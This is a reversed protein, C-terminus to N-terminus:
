KDYRISWGFVKRKLLKIIQRGRLECVKKWEIKGYSLQNFLRNQYYRRLRSRLKSKDFYGVIENVNELEQCIRKVEKPDNICMLDSFEKVNDDTTGPFITKIYKLQVVNVVSWDKNVSTVQSSHTRYLYLVEQMNILTLGCALARTWLDYDEAPVMEQRYFLGNKLFQKKRWMSSAHLVPSYSLANFKVDEIDSSRIMVEQSAGFRKMGASVLDVTPHNDLYAVQKEMRQPLSIDDSDMRAIYEGRAMEIGINLVNALGVNQQGRYRVIREDSYTDLIEESNDPSCDNLVILEFDKYTQNLISDMAERLYPAVNFVPMLISVRPM